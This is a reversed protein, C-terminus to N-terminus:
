PLGLTFGETINALGNTIKFGINAGATGPTGKYALKEGVWFEAESQIHDDLRIIDGEQLNIVDRTSLTTRGLIAKCELPVEQLCDHLLQQQEDTSITTKYTDSEIEAPLLKKILSYPLCINLMGPISGTRIEYCISIVSETPLYEHRPANYRLERSITTSGNVDMGWAFQYQLAIRTIVKQLIALDIDTLDSASEFSVGDGGTLADICATAFPLSMDVIGAPMNESINADISITEESLSSIYDGFNMQDIFILTTTVPVHIAGYLAKDIESAYRLHVNHLARMHEKSLRDPRTFDYSKIRRTPASNNEESNTGIDQFMSLISNLEEHSLIESM